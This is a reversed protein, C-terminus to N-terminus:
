VAGRQLALAAQESPTEIGYTKCIAAVILDTHQIVTGHEYSARLARKRLDTVIGSPLCFTVTTREGIYKNNM